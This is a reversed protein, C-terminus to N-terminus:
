NIENCLIKNILDRFNVFPSNKSERIIEAIDVYPVGKILAGKLATNKFEVDAVRTVRREFWKKYISLVSTTRVIAGDNSCTTLLQEDSVIEMGSTSQLSHSQDNRYALDQGVFVIESFGMKILIDLSTTAVSGGTEVLLENHEDAYKEAYHYGQQLAILRKGKHKTVATHCATSLYILPNTYGMDKLQNYVFDQPDTIMVVDPTINHARLAKLASGVSLIFYRNKFNKLSSVVDDLSPGSSVLVATHGKFHGFLRSVNTDFCNINSFFNREMLSSFRQFSMERTKIEELLGKISNEKPLTKLWANPIIWRVSENILSELNLTSLQMNELCIIQVNPCSFINSLDVNEVAKRLVATYPEVIVIKKDPERRLLEQAHYGLGFGFICYMVAKQDIQSTIFRNVDKIPDYRSYLYYDNIKMTLSGQKSPQVEIQIDENISCRLWKLLQIDRISM